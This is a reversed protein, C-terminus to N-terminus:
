RGSLSVGLLLSGQVTVVDELRHSSVPSTLIDRTVSKM